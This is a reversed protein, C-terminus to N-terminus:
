DQEDKNRVKIKSLINKNFAWWYKQSIESGDAKRLVRIAKMFAEKRHEPNRICVNVLIWNLSKGELKKGAVWSEITEEGSDSRRAAIEQLEANYIEQKSPFHYGCFCCDNMQIPVMRGCNPCIKTPAVGGGAGTKHWLGWDRDDEYRGLREYNTGFDMCIFEGGKGEAMRSARGLCQLYKVVSTTAFMLMVAKIDPQDIGTTLIGYNVLVPFEGRGFGDIVEKREGSYEVDEDFDGSLCYKAKVGRDNFEKTVAITQESSCCFVLCKAGPCIRMYNDVAGVYHPRSKFKAAMQGLVYDGRSASWEVDDLRPADLSYLRCGCLFGGAVLEAVTPGTVLAAYEMGLQKQQGYRAPSASLGLVYAEAPLIDFMFDFEARHCEDFVYMSFGTLWRLWDDRKARQRATQAMMCVCKGDPIDKTSAFVMDTAAGWRVCHGADQKLIEESHALVLVSNGKSVAMSAIDGLIVGKGAGTPLQLVVRRYRGMATRTESVAREQYGRLRM